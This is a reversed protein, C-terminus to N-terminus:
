GIMWLNLQYMNGNNKGAAIKDVKKIICNLFFIFIIKIAIYM